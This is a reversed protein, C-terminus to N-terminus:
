PLYWTTLAATTIVAGIIPLGLSLAIRKLRGNTDDSKSFFIQALIPSLVATVTWIPLSKYQIMLFGFGEGPAGGSPGSM